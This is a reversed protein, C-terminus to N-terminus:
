DPWFQFITQKGKESRGSLIPGVPFNQNVEVFKKKKIGSIKGTGYRFRSFIIQEIDIRFVEQIVYSKM